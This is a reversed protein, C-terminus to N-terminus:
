DDGFLSPPEPRTRAAPFGDFVAQDVEMDGAVVADALCEESGRNSNRDVDPDETDDTDIGRAMKPLSVAAPALCEPDKSAEFMDYDESNDADDLLIEHVPDPDANGPSHCGLLTVDEGWNIDLGATQHLRAPSSPASIPPEAGEDDSSSQMSTRSPPNLYSPAYNFAMYGPKRSPGFTSSSSYGDAGYRSYSSYTDPPPPPRSKVEELTSSLNVPNRDRRQYFLLYAAETKTDNEDIRSVHSDDFNYWNNDVVNKAYATYHGGGLGGFHNSVAFLDYIYRKDLDKDDEFEALEQDISEDLQEEPSKATDSAKGGAGFYRPRNGKVVDTLDLGSIPFDVLADIKNASMYRFGRGNNAFRKLHFVLIEPASWIDLKKKIRRHEKCRPCYWTDEEGMIEEKMFENLCHSLTITKKEKVRPAAEEEAVPASKDLPKFCGSLRYTESYKEGFIKEAFKPDFEVIALLGEDFVFTKKMFSEISDDEVVEREVVCEASNESEEQLEDAGADSRSNFDIDKEKQLDEAFGDSDSEPSDEYHMREGRRRKRRMPIKVKVEPQPFFFGSNNYQQDPNKRFEDPDSKLTNEYYKLSYPCAQEKEMEETVAEDLDSLSVSFASFLLMKVQHLLLRGLKNVHLQDIQDPELRDAFSSHIKPSTHIKKPLAILLPYGFYKHYRRYDDGRKLYIPLHAVKTFDRDELPTEFFDWDPEGLEYVLINEADISPLDLVAEDNSWVLSIKRELATAVLIRKPHSNWGCQEAVSAKLTSIRSDRKLTVALRIAKNTSPGRNLPKWAPIAIVYRTIERLDPVPVSLFMYPDFKVSWKGCEICEVRSKYEGQFLDVIASDNRARYIEWSKDAIVHDPLGDMDPAEIYPKKKIRNLDEHLGDLLFQLLEQSDQQSYGMFTQNFQGITSKFTRPAVNAARNDDVNWLQGVLHAYAQAVEGNMGLPNDPNLDKKWKDLLFFKTLLATNSLCQLASNMFCTNGLNSLGTAGVPLARMKKPANFYSSERPSQPSLPAEIALRPSNSQEAIDEELPEGRSLRLARARKEELIQSRPKAIPAEDEMVIDSATKEADTLTEVTPSTDSIVSEGNQTEAVEMRVGDGEVGSLGTM